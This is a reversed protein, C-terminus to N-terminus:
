ASSGERKEKRGERPKQLSLSLSPPGKGKKKKKKKVRERRRHGVLFAFYLFSCVGAIERRKKGGGGKKGGKGECWDIIFSRTSKKERGGQQVEKAAFLRPGGRAM